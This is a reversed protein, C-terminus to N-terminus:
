GLAIVLGESFCLLFLFRKLWCYVHPKQVKAVRSVLLSAIWKAILFSLGGHVPQTHCQLTVSSPSM